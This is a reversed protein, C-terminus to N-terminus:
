LNLPSTLRFGLRHEASFGVERKGSGGSTSDLKGVTTGKGNHALANLLSSGGSSVVAINHKRDGGIFVSNTELPLSKGNLTISNLTIRLYGTNHLSGGHPSKADRVSVVTGTVPSGEPAITQNEMLLPQDLLASFAQGTQATASSLPEQLRVYIATNAPVVLPTTGTFPL